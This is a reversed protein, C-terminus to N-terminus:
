PRSDAEIWGGDGANWIFTLDDRWQPETGPSTYYFYILGDDTRLWVDTESPLKRNSRQYEARGVYAGDPTRYWASVLLRDASDNAVYYAVEKSSIELRNEDPVPEMLGDLTAQTPKWKGIM